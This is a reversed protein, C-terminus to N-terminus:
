KMLEKFEEVSLECGKLINKLIKPHIIKGSHFPVTVRVGAENRYIKHSGSQRSLFYGKKKLVRIVKDATVRPLKESM